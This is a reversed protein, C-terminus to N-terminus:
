FLRYMYVEESSICAKFVDLYAESPLQQSHSHIQMLSHTVRSTYYLRLIPNGSLDITKHSSAGKMM